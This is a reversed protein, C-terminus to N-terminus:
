EKEHVARMAVLSRDLVRRRDEDTMERELIERAIQATLAATEQALAHRTEVHRRSIESEVRKLFRAEDAQAKDRIQEAEAQGEREARERLATVEHEVEDLRRMVEARLEEAQDLKQQAQKLEAAIGEKRTDLFAVMPGGVYRALLWMFLTLNLALWIFDPVGLHTAGHDVLIAFGLLVVFVVVWTGVTKM